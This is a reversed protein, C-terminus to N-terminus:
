TTPPTSSRTDRIRRAADVMARFLVRSEVMLNSDQLRAELDDIAQPNDVLHAMKGALYGAFTGGVRWTIPIDDRESRFIVMHDKVIGNERRVLEKPLRSIKFGAKNSPEAELTTTM